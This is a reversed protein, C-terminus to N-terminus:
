LENEKITGIIDEYRIFRLKEGGHEIDSSAYEVFLVISGEKIPSCDYDPTPSGLKVVTAKMLSREATSDLLILGGKTITEPKIERVLIRGQM